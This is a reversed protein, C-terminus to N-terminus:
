AKGGQKKAKTEVEAIDLLLNLYDENKEPAKHLIGMAAAKQLILPKNREFRARGPGSLSIGQNPGENEEPKDEM